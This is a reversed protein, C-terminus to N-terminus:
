RRQNKEWNDLTPMNNIWNRLSERISYHENRLAENIMTSTQLWPYERFLANQKDELEKYEKKIKDHGEIAESMTRFAVSPDQMIMAVNHQRVLIDRLQKQMEQKVAMSPLQSSRSHSQAPSRPSRPSRPNSGSNKSNASPNGNKPSNSRSPNRSPGAGKM